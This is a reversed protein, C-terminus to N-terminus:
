RAVFAIVLEVSTVFSSPSKILAAALQVVAGALAADGAV